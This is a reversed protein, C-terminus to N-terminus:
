GIRDLHWMVVDLRRGFYVEPHMAGLPLDSFTNAQVEVRARQLPWKPHQVETRFLWPSYRGKSYLCYRETAWEAFSGPPAAMPEGPIVTARFERRGRRAFYSVGAPTKTLGVEAVFYPAHFFTRATWVALPNTANLSLFWIGRKGHATVYTRVNFEPFDCLWAPSPWRRKTVDELRFPILGIWARGEHLDLEVGPPLLKRLDEPNAEYHIFALDLWQM